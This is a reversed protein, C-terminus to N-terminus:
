QVLTVEIRLRALATLPVDEFAVLGWPDTVAERWTEDVMLTVTSGALNPWSRDPPAIIAEVMVMESNQADRFISLKLPFDIGPVQAPELQALYEDYRESDAARTTMALPPPQLLNLLAASLEFTFQNGVRSLAQEVRRSLSLPSPEAVPITPLFSLDPAPIHTPQPLQDAADALALEYLRAYADACELCSDLHLAVGPYVGLYDEGALQAETYADLQDLCRRCATEDATQSLVAELHAQRTNKNGLTTKRSMM